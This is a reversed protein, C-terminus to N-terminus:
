QATNAHPTASRKVISAREVGDDEDDDGDGDNCLM